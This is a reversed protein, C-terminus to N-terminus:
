SQIHPNQDQSWEISSPQEYSQNTVPLIHAVIIYVKLGRFGQIIEWAERKREREAGGKRELRRRKGERWGRGVSEEHENVLWIYLTGRFVEHSEPISLGSSSFLGFGHTIKHASSIWIFDSKNQPQRPLYRIKVLLGPYTHQHRYGKLLPGTKGQKVHCCTTQHLSLTGPSHVCQSSM